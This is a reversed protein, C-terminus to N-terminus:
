HIYTIKLIKVSYPVDAFKFFSFNAKISYDTIIGPRSLMDYDFCKAKCVPVLGIPSVFSDSKVGLWLTGNKYGIIHLSPYKKKIKKATIVSVVYLLLNTSVIFVIFAFIYNFM